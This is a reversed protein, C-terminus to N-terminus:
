PAYHGSAACFDGRAINLIEDVVRPTAAGVPPRSGIDEVLQNPQDLVAELAELTSVSQALGLKTFDYETHIVTPSFALNLVRKGLLAAEFGVTSTQVLVTDAAHLQPGLGDKTSNSVYVREQSGQDPFLHYQTPHYRVILAVNPRLRVWERLQREVQVCLGTGALDPPSPPSPLELSGCWLVIRKGEWGHMQRFALGQAPGSPDQLYDYAPCGTVLVRGDDIGADRLQRAALRSPATIRDAYVKHHLYTDHPNAFVDLMTLCPVQRAVAAEIAAQESRPSSTSVVVAPSLSEILRGMFRLPLFSRRGGKAYLQAANEEGYAEVWDLYNVGLYCCSEFEDVDPHQNEPWLKRGYALAKEADVLHMFDKYGLPNLGMRRAQTFGLTLALVWCRVGRAELAKVVPAVKAIHGNGYTVFLVGDPVLTAADM